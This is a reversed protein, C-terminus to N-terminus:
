GKAIHAFDRFDEKKMNEYARRLHVYDPTSQQTHTSTTERNTPGRGPTSLQVQEVDEPRIDRYRHHKQVLRHAPLTLTPVLAGPNLEPPRQRILVSPKWAFFGGIALTGSLTFWIFPNRVPGTSFQFVGIFGSSTNTVQGLTVVSGGSSFNATLSLGTFDASGSMIDIFLDAIYTKNGTLNFMGFNRRVTSSPDTIEITRTANGFSETKLDGQPITDPDDVTVVPIGVSSVECSRESTHVPTAAPDYTVESFVNVNSVTRAALGTSNSIFASVETGNMQGDTLTAGSDLEPTIFEIIYDVWLEGRTTAAVNGGAIVYLTGVDYLLPDFGDEEDSRRNFYSKRKNLNKQSCYHDFPTWTPGRVSEEFDMAVVKTTPPPDLPNYDIVLGVYGTDTTPAEPRYHFSLKKFRYSEYLGAMGSAWPFTAPNGPNIAYEATIAYSTTSGSVEGIYECKSVVVTGPPSQHFKPETSKMVSARAVPAVVNRSNKQKPPQKKAAPKSKPHQKSM